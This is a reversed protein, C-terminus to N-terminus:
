DAPILVEHDLLVRLRPEGLREAARAGTGGECEAITEVEEVSLVIPDSDRYTRLAVRDGRPESATRPGLVVSEPLPGPELARVAALLARRHRDVTAGGIRLAAAGELAEVLEHCEAYFRQEEFRRDGWLAAYLTPTPQQYPRDNELALALLADDAVDLERLCHHALAEEMAGLFARLALWFRGGHAGRTHKCFWTACVSNRSDHVTCRAHEDRTDLYGCALEADKGFRAEDAARWLPYTPPRDIGLPTVGARARIRAALRQRGRELRPDVRRFFAGVQFNALVPEYTCCRVEAHFADDGEGVMPCARCDARHEVPVIAPDLAASVWARMLPPLAELSPDASSM